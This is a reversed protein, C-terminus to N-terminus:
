PSSALARALFQAEQYKTGWSFERYVVSCMIMAAPSRSHLEALRSTGELALRLAERRQQTDVSAGGVTSGAWTSAGRYQGRM